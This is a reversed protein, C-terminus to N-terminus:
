IHILSLELVLCFNKKSTATVFFRIKEGEFAMIRNPYYGDETVIVSVERTPHKFVKEKLEVAIASKVVILMSLLIIIRIKLM